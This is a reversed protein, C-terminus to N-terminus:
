VLSLGIGRGFGAGVALFTVGTLFGCVLVESVEVVVLRLTIRGEVRTVLGVVGVRRVVKGALVGLL